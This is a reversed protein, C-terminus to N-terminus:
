YNRGTGIPPMSLELGRIVSCNTSSGGAGASYAAIIIKAGEIRPLPPLANERM